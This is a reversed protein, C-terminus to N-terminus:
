AGARLRNWLAACRAPLAALRREVEQGIEAGDPLALVQEIDWRDQSGGAYLKLLVLDAPRAVALDAADAVPEARAIVEGQWGHRGVVLDVDRDPARQIRVVGALPDAADGPRIEIAAQAEFADWFPRELVSTDTVLLDQDFTSRSIGHVALAAAGILAHPVARGRLHASVADLLTV